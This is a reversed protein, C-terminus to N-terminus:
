IGDVLVVTLVDDRMTSVRPLIRIIGVDQGLQIAQAELDDPYYITTSPVAGRWNGIASVNWGKQEITAAVSAAQGAIGSQNFVGVSATRLVPEPTPETTPATASPTPTTPTPAPTTPVASSPAQTTPSTALPAVANQDDWVLYGLYGAAAICLAVSVAIVWLPLSLASSIPTKRHDPM